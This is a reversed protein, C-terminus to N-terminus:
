VRWEGGRIEDLNRVSRGYRYTWAMDVSGNQRHVSTLVRYYECPSDYRTFGELRDLRDLIAEPEEFLWFEGRSEAGPRAPPVLGPYGGVDFLSGDVLVPEVISVRGSQLILANSGGHKLTGYFFFAALRISPQVGEQV